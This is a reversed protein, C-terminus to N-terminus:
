FVLSPMLDDEALGIAGHKILETHPTLELGRGNKSFGGWLHIGVDSNINDFGQLREPRDRWSSSRPLLAIHGYGASAATERLSILTECRGNIPDELVSHPDVLCPALVQSNAKLPKLGLKKAKKRAEVGFAKIQGDVILAADDVLSQNSGHLIRVPDLLLSNSM